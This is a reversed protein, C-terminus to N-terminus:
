MYIVINVDYKLMGLNEFFLFFWVKKELLMWYILLIEFNWFFNYMELFLWLLENKFM